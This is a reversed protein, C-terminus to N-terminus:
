SRRVIADGEQLPAKSDEKVIAAAAFNDYLKEVKLNGVTKGQRQVDLSDGIKLQNKMGLNVVAVFAGARALPRLQSELEAPFANAATVGYGFATSGGLVVIRAERPRKRGLTPGRCGWQNVAAFKEARRHLYLDAALLAVFVAGVALTMAILAFALRKKM